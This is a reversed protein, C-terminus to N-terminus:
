EKVMVSVRICTCTSHVYVCMYMCTCSHTRMICQIYMHIYMRLWTDEYVHIYIYIYIHEGTLLGIYIYLIIASCLNRREVRVHIYGERCVHM